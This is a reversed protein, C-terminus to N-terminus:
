RTRVPVRIARHSSAPSVTITEDDSSVIPVYIETSAEINATEAEKATFPKYETPISSAAFDQVLPEGVATEEESDFSPSSPLLNGNKIAIPIDPDEDMDLPTGLTVGEKSKDLPQPNYFPVSPAPSIPAVVSSNKKRTINSTWHKKLSFRRHDM